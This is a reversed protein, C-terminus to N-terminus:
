RIFGAQELSSLDLGSSRRGSLQRAIYKALLDTELNIKDGPRLEGLTTEKLTQPIVTMTFRDQLVQNVTLSVGDVAASGKPAIQRATEDSPLAFTLEEASGASVRRIFVVRTDVHGSVFHGGVFDGVKLAKELNVRSGISLEGIGTKSVTERSAFASFRSKSFDTVTLCAGSVAISEGIVYADFRSDVTLSFDAGSKLVAKVVGVDQILGTFV